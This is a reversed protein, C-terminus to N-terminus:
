RRKSLFAQGLRGQRWQRQRARQLNWKSSAGVLGSAMESLPESGFSAGISREPVVIIAQKLGRNALKDSTSPGDVHPKESAYTSKSSCTAKM